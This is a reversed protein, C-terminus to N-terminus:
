FFIMNTKTTNDVVVVSDYQHVKKEDKEREKRDGNKTKPNRKQMENVIITKNHRRLVVQLFKEEKKKKDFHWNNDILQHKVKFFSSYINM